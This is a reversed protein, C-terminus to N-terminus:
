SIILEMETRTCSWGAQGRDLCPTKWKGGDSRCIDGGNGERCGGLSVIDSGVITPVSCSIEVIRLVTRRQFHLWRVRWASSPPRSPAVCACLLAAAPRAFKPEASRSAALNLDQSAIVLRKPGLKALSLAYQNSYRDSQCTSNGQETGDSKTATYFFSAIKPTESLAFHSLTSHQMVPDLASGAANNAACYYPHCASIGPM